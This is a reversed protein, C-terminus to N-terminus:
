RDSPRTVWFGTILLFILTLSILPNVSLSLRFEIMGLPLGTLTETTMVVGSSVFPQLLLATTDRELSLSMSSFGFVM